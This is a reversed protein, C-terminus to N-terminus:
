TSLEEITSAFDSTVTENDSVKESPVMLDFSIDDLKEDLSKLEGKIEMLLAIIASDKTDMEDTPM